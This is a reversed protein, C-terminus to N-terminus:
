YKNKEDPYQHLNVKSESMDESMLRNSSFKWNSYNKNSGHTSSYHLFSDSGRWRKIGYRLYSPINNDPRSYCRLTTESPCRYVSPLSHNRLYISDTDLRTSEVPYPSLSRRYNRETERDSSCSYRVSDVLKREPTLSRYTLPPTTRFYSNAMNLYKRSTSLALDYDSRRTLHLEESANPEIIIPPQLAKRNTEHTTRDSFEQKNNMWQHDLPSNSIGRERPSGRKKCEIVHNKTTISILSETESLGIKKHSLRSSQDDPATLENSKVSRCSKITKPTNHSSLSSQSADCTFQFVAKNNDSQTHEEFSKLQVEILKNNKSSKRKTKQNDRNEIVNITKNELGPESQSVNKTQKTGEESPIDNEKLTCEDNIQAVKEPSPSKIKKLKSVNEKKKSGGDRKNNEGFNQDKDSTKLTNKSIENIVSTEIQNQGTYNTETKLNELLKENSTPKDNTIDVLSKSKNEPQSNNENKEISNEPFKSKENQPEPSKKKQKRERDIKNKELVKKSDDVLQLEKKEQIEVNDIESNKASLKSLSNDKIEECLNMKPQSPLGTQFSTKDKTVKLEIQKDVDGDEILTHPSPSNEDKLQINKSTNNKKSGRKKNNNKIFDKDNDLINSETKIKEVNENMAISKQVYSSKENSNDLEPKVDDTKHKGNNQKTNQKDNIKDQSEYNLENPLYINSSTKSNDDSIDTINKTELKVKQNIDDNKETLKDPSPSKEDNPKLKTKNKKSSRKKNDNKNSDNNKDSIKLNTQNKENKEDVKIEANENTKIKNNFFKFENDDTKTKNINQNITQEDNIKERLVNDLNGSFETTKLLTEHDTVKVEEKVQQNHKIDNKDIEISKDLSLSKKNQSQPSSKNKRSGRKNERTDEDSTSKMKQVVTNTNNNEYEDAGLHTKENEEIIKENDNTLVSTKINKNEIISEPELYTGNQKINDIKDNLSEGLIDENTIGRENFKNSGLNKSKLVDPTSEKTKSSLKKEINDLSNSDYAMEEKEDKNNEDQDTNKDTNLNSEISCINALNKVTDTINSTTVLPESIENEENLLEDLKENVGDELYKNLSLNNTNLQESPIDNASKIIHTSQIDTLSLEDSTQNLGRLGHNVLSISNEMLKDSTKNPEKEDMSCEEPAVLIDVIKLAIENTHVDVNEVSLNEISSKNNCENLVNEIVNDYDMIINGIAAINLEHKIQAYEMNNNCNQNLTNVNELLICEAKNIAMQEICHSKPKITFTNITEKVTLENTEEEPIIDDQLNSNKESVFIDFQQESKENLESEPSSINIEKKSEIKVQEYNEGPLSSNPKPTEDIMHLTENTLRDISIKVMEFHANEDIPLCESNTEIIQNETDILKEVNINEQINVNKDPFVTAAEKPKYERIEAKIEDTIIECHQSKETNDDIISPLQFNNNEIIDITNVVNEIRRENANEIKMDFPRLAQTSDFVLIEENLIAKWEEIKVQSKQEIPNNTYTDFTNIQDFGYNEENISSEKMDFIPKKLNDKSLNIEISDVNEAKETIIATKSKNVQNKQNVYNEESNELSIEQECNVTVLDPNKVPTKEKVANLCKNDASHNEINDFDNTNSLNNTESFHLDGLLLGKETINMTFEPETLNKNCIENEVIEFSNENSVESKLRMNEGKDEPFKINKEESKECVDIIENVIVKSNEETHKPINTGINECLIISSEENKDDNFTLDNTNLQEKTSLEHINEKIDVYVDKQSAYDKEKGDVIELSKVEHFGFDNQIEQKRKEKSNELDGDIKALLKTNNVSNEETCISVIKPEIIINTSIDSSQPICSTKLNDNDILSQKKDFEAVETVSYKPYEKSEPHELIIKNSDSNELTMKEYETANEHNIVEAYNTIEQNKDFEWPNMLQISEVTIFENNNLANNLENLIIPESVTGITGILATPVLERVNEIIENSNEFVNAQKLNEKTESFVDVSEKDIKEPFKSESQEYEISEDTYSEKKNFVTESTPEFDYIKYNKSETLIDAVINNEEKLSTNEESKSKTEQNEEVENSINNDRLQGDIIDSNIISTLVENNILKSDNHIEDCTNLTSIDEINTLTSLNNKDIVNKSGTLNSNEIVGIQLVKVTNTNQNVNFDNINSIIQCQEYISEPTDKTNNNDSLNNQVKNSKIFRKNKSDNNLDMEQLSNVDESLARIQLDNEYNKFDPTSKLTEDTIITKNSSYDVDEFAVLSNAINENIKNDEIIIQDTQFQENILQPKDIKASIQNETSTETHQSNIGIKETADNEDNEAQGYLNHIENNIELPQEINQIVNAGNHSMIDIIETKNVVFNNVSQLNDVATDTEINETVENTSLVDLFEIVSEKSVKPDQLINLTNFFNSTNEVSIKTKLNDLTVLDLTEKQNKLNSCENNEVINQKQSINDKTSDDINTIVTTNSLTKDSESIDVKDNIESNQYIQDTSLIKLGQKTEIEDVTGDQIPKLSNEGNLSMNFESSGDCIPASDNIIDDVLSEHLLNKHEGDLEKMHESVNNSFDNTKRPNNDLSNMKKTQDLTIESLNKLTKPPEDFLNSSSNLILDNKESLDFLELVHEPIHETNESPNINEKSTRINSFENNSDQLTSNYTNLYEDEILDSATELDTEDFLVEFGSNQHDDESTIINPEEYKFAAEIECEFGKKIVLNNRKNKENPTIDGSVISTSAQLLNHVEDDKYINDISSSQISNLKLNGNKVKDFVTQANNSFSLSLSQSVGDTTDTHESFSLDSEVSAMKSIIINQLQLLPKMVSGFLIGNVGLDDIADNFLINQMMKISSEFPLEKNTEEVISQNVICNNLQVFQHSLHEFCNIVENSINSGTQNSLLVQNVQFFGIKMDQLPELLSVLPNMNNESDRVVNVNNILTDIDMMLEDFITEFDVLLKDDSGYDSSVINETSRSVKRFYCCLDNIPKTFSIFCEALNNSETGESALVMFQNASDNIRDYIDKLDLDDELNENKLEKNLSDLSFAISSIPPILMQKLKLNPKVDDVQPEENFAIDCLINELPQVMSFLPELSNTSVLKIKSSNQQLTKIYLLTTSITNRLVSIIRQETVRAVQRNVIIIFNKIQDSLRDLIETASLDKNNLTELDFCVSSQIENLINDSVGFPDDIQELALLSANIATMLNSVNNATDRDLATVNERETEEIFKWALSYLAQISRELETPNDSYNFSEHTHLKVMTGELIIKMYKLFENVNPRSITKLIEDEESSLQAISFAKNQTTNLTTLYLGDEGCQTLIEAANYSDHPLPLENEMEALTESVEEETNNSESWVLKEIINQFTKPRHIKENLNLQTLIQDDSNSTFLKPTHFSPHGEDESKPKLILSSQRPSNESASFFVDRKSNSSSLHDSFFELSNECVSDSKENKELTTDETLSVGDFETDSMIQQHCFDVPVDIVLAEMMIPGSISSEKVIRLSPLDIVNDETFNLYLLNFHTMGYNKTFRIFSISYLINILLHIHKFLKGSINESLEDAYMEIIQLAEDHTLDPTEYLSVTVEKGDFSFSIDAPEEITYSKEIQSTREEPITSLSENRILSNEVSLYEETAASKVTSKDSFKFLNKM